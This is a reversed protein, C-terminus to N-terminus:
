AHFFVFYAVGFISESQEKPIKLRKKGSLQLETDIVYRYLESHVNTLLHKIYFFANGLVYITM